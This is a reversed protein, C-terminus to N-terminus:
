DAGALAPGGGRRCLIRVLHEFLITRCGDGGLAQCDRQRREASGAHQWPFGIRTPVACCRRRISRRPDHRRGRSPRRGAPPRSRSGTPGRRPGPARTRWCRGAGRGHAAPRRHSRSPGRWRRGCRMGPRPRQGRVLIADVLEDGSTALAYKPRQGPRVEAGSVHVSFRRIGMASNKRWRGAGFQPVPWPTPRRHRWATTSSCM